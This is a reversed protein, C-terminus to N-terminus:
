RRILANITEGLETGVHSGFEILKGLFADVRRNTNQNTTLGREETLIQRADARWM